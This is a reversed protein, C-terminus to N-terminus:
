RGGIVREQHSVTLTPAALKLFGMFGLPVYPATATVTVSKIVSKGRYYYTSNAVGATCSVTINTGTPWIQGSGTQKAVAIIDADAAGSCVDDNRSAAYRAADRVANAMLHYQYFLNGFELTGLGLLLLVPLVVSLELLVAGREDHEPRFCVFTGVLKALSTRM